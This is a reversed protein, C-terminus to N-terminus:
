FCDTRNIGPSNSSLVNQEGGWGRIGAQILPGRQFMEVIASVKEVYIWKVVGFSQQDGPKGKLAVKVHQCNNPPNRCVNASLYAGGSSSDRHNCSVSRYKFSTNTAHVPLHGDYSMNM